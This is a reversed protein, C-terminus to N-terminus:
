TSPHSGLSLIWLPLAVILFLGGSALFPLGVWFGDLNLGFSYLKSLLPGAVMGGIMEMTTMAAYLRGVKSPAVLSTALSRVTTAFGSGLASIVLVKCILPTNSAVFILISCVYHWSFRIQHCGLELLGSCLFVM